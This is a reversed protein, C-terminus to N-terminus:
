FSENPQVDGHASESKLHVNCHLGNRLWAARPLAVLLALRLKHCNSLADSCLLLIQVSFRSVLMHSTSAIRKPKNSLSPKLRM